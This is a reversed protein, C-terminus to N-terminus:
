SYWRPTSYVEEILDPAIYEPTSRAAYLDLRIFGAPKNNVFRTETLTVLIGGLSNPNQCFITDATSNIYYDLELGCGRTSGAQYAKNLLEQM